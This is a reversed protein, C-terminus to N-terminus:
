VNGRNAFFELKFEELLKKENDALNACKLLNPRRLWTRGLSQKIKWNNIAQHNGSRLIEPVKLGNFDAPKTYQPYELCGNLEISFSESSASQSDGLVGPLLRILSDMVIMAPLEGGSLVYDGVSFEYDVYTDIIRQDLGEYRGSLLILPEKKSALESAIGQTFLEGQPTLYVIKAQNNLKQKADTIARAMPEPKLVMGPGGGFPTDDVTAHKDVAYDRLNYLDLSCLHKDFARGVVGYSFYSQFIEPFLSIVAFQM